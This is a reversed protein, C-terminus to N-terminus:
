RCQPESGGEVDAERLTLEILEIVARDKPRDAARKSALVDRLSAVRLAGQGFRVAVARSRLSAFSSVGTVTDLFDVFLGDQENVVSYVRSVDTRPPVVEAGLVRAFERIRGLAQQTNRVMFDFDLTTVPAGNLAAAANGILVAELRAENLAEAIRIILPEANM